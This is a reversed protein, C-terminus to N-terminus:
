SEFRDEQRETPTQASVLAPEAKKQAYRTFLYTAAAGVACLVIGLGVHLGGLPSSSYDFVILIAPISGLVFGVIAWYTARPYKNLLFQMLKAITFFGVVVGVAFMLLVSLSHLPTSLVGSVSALIPQYYGFLMLLMSGSIGPVVLACSALIGILILLVYQYKAMDTGLNVDGMGPIFCIGIVVAFPLVLSLVDTKKFGNERADNVTAPCSGLMLGAFLLVTPLPAYKLAYFLPFYMVALAAVAGLIFPLLFTVSKKFQRRVNGISDILKDYVGLLVALTGGSVGPIIMATGIAGGKLMNKLFEKPKLSIVKIM